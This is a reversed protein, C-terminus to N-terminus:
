YWRNSEWCLSILNMKQSILVTCDESGYNKQVNELSIEQTTILDNIEKM